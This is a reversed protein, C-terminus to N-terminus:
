FSFSLALSPGKLTLRLDDYTDDDMWLARYGLDVRLRGSEVGLALHGHAVPVGFGGYGALEGSLVVGDMPRWVMWGGGGMGCGGAKDDLTGQAPTEVELDARFVRLGIIMGGSLAGTSTRGGLLVDAGHYGIEYRSDLSTGGALSLAEGPHESPLTASASWAHRFLVARVVGIPLTEADIGQISLEMWPLGERDGLGLDDALGLSPGLDESGTEGEVDLIVRGDLAPKWWSLSPVVAVPGKEPPASPASGDVEQLLLCAFLVSM